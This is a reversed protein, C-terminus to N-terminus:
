NIQAQQWKTIAQQKQRPMHRRIAELQAPDVDLEGKLARKFNDSPDTGLEAKPQEEDTATPKEQKLNQNSPASGVEKQIRDFLEAKIERTAQRIDMSHDDSMKQEILDLNEKVFPDRNMEYLVDVRPDRDEPPEETNRSEIEALREELERVKTQEQRKAEREAKMDERVKEYVTKDVTAQPTKVDEKVEKPTEEKPEPQEQEPVPTSVEEKVDEKEKAM